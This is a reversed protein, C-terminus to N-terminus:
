RNPHRNEGSATLQLHMSRDRGGCSNLCCDGLECHQRPSTDIGRSHEQSPMRQRAACDALSERLLRERGSAQNALASQAEVADHLALIREGVRVRARLEAPIPPKTLYDDAGARLGSVIDAESNKATLIILYVSSLAACARVKRCVQPGSLAPMVWDLIALRPANPLQLAAWAENGDRAVVLEHDPILIQKLLEQFFVDDEAILLKM